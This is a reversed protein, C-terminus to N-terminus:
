WENLDVKRCEAVAKEMQNSEEASISGFYDKITKRSNASASSVLREYEAVPLVVAEMENNRVIAIKRLTANKLETMFSSFQRVLQTASIIEKREFSIGGSVAIM